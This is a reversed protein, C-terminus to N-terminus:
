PLLRTCCDRIRAGLSRIIARALLNLPLNVANLLLYYGVVSPLSYGAKLLLIPNFVNVLSFAFTHLWVSLEYLWFDTFRLRSLKHHHYFHYIHMVDYTRHPFSVVAVSTSNASCMM